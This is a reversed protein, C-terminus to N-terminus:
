GASLNGDGSIPIAEGLYKPKPKFPCMFFDKNRALVERLDYYGQGAYRRLDASVGWAELGLARAVYLARYLHYQQTVILVRKARFVERARYLSEYTSFGAHDTFIDQSPVGANEAYAKMVNVEDYDARGHDGSMLLKDSAGAEYLALATQLRDALMPSAYANAGEGWVGAGLVLICDANLGAAKEPALIYAQARLRVYGSLAFPLLTLLLLILLAARLRKPKNPVKEKSVMSGTYCKVRRRATLLQFVDPPERRAKARARSQNVAAAFGAIIM